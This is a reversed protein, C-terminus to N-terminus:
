KRRRFLMLAAAGLGGLAITSPEPTPHLVLAPMGTLDLPLAAPTGNGGTPNTFTVDAVNMGANQAAAYSAFNGEWAMLELTATGGLAVGPVAYTAGTPDLMLGPGAGSIGAAPGTGNGLLLTVIPTLSGASAGGLLEVSFDNAELVTNGGSTTFVMGGSTATSSSNGNNLNDLNITGQAYVGTAAVGALLTALIQKKM